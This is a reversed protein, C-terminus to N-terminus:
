GRYPIFVDLHDASLGFSIHRESSKIGNVICKGHECNQILHKRLQELYSYVDPYCFWEDKISPYSGKPAFHAYVEGGWWFKQTKPSNTILKKRWQEIFGTEIAEELGDIECKIDEADYKDFKHNREVLLKHRSKLGKLRKIIKRRLTEKVPVKKDECGSDWFGSVFFPDFIPYPFAWLGRKEPSRDNSTKELLGTEENVEGYYYNPKQKIAKIPGIRNFLMKGRRFVFDGTRVSM